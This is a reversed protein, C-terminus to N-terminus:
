SETRMRTASGVPTEILGAVVRDTLPAGEQEVVVETVPATLDQASALSVCVLCWVFALLLCITRM